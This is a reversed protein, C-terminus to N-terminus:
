FRRAITTWWIEGVFCSELIERRRSVLASWRQPKRGAAGRCGTVVSARVVFAAHAGQRPPENPRICCVTNIAVSRAARPRSKGEMAQTRKRELIVSSVLVIITQCILHVSSICATGPRYLHLNRNFVYTTFKLQRCCFTIQCACLYTAGYCCLLFILGPVCSLGYRIQHQLSPITLITFITSLGTTSGWQFNFKVM